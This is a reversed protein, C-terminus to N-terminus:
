NEIPAKEAKDIVLMEIPSKRSELKLGLQEQVAATVISVADAESPKDQGSAAIYATLDLNFDFLGKLGTMDVVPRQLPDGLLEAFRAMSVREAIMNMKGQRAARFDPEGETASPHLKHGNKGVSLIYAALERTERHFAVQFRNALLTQMMARLQEKSALGASKAAIDYREENIWAPGTVQSVMLDYAWLVCSRFRVNRMTVSQPGTSIDEKRSGEAGTKALQSSKVSAVEFAPPPAEQSLACCAAATMLSTGLITRVM